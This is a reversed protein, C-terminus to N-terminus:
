RIARRRKLGALGLLGSALLLLSAPEPVPIDGNDLFADTDASLAPDSIDTFTLTSSPASATFSFDYTTLVASLNTTRVASVIQSLDGVSVRLARQFAFGAAGYDFLLSYTTGPQTAFTQSLM